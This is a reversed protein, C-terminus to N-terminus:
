GRLLSFAAVELSGALLEAVTLSRGSEDTLIVREPTEEARRCMLEWITTPFTPLDAPVLETSPMGRGVPSLDLM